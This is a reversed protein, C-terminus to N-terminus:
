VERATQVERLTSRIYQPGPSTRGSALASGPGPSIRGSGSEPASGHGAGAGSSLNSGLGPGQGMVPGSVFVESHRSTSTASYRRPMPPLPIQPGLLLQEQGQSGKNHSAPSSNNVLSNAAAIQASTTHQMWEPTQQSGIHPVDRQLHSRQTQVSRNSPFNWSRNGALPFTEDSAPSTRGSSNVTTAGSKGGPVGGPISSYRGPRNLVADVDVSTFSTARSSRFRGAQPPATVVLGTLDVENDAEGDSEVSSFSSARSRSHGQVWPRRPHEMRALQPDYVDAQVIIEKEREIQGNKNDAKHRPRHKRGSQPPPPPAVAGLMERRSKGIWLMQEHERLYREGSFSKQVISRAMMGLKRRQPTKEYMRKTIVEVDAKTPNHPLVPAKFGPEDEAYKAWEGIMALLSIQARALAYPDNPAVVASYRENDDPDTLVRLSAGVDTCVVPAGTLAAEGLALPLGESISSNLFLWTNALVLGPDATGRLNVGGALGKSAIVEQCESSYIPAKNLAGYIDLTYETFGWENIVIDAALLATKIDKAYWVHSLM